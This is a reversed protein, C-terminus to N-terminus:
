VNSKSLNVNLKIWDIYLRQSKNKLHDLGPRKKMKNETKQFLYYLKQLLDIHFFTWTDMWCVAGPNLGM